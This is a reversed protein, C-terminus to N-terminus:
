DLKSLIKKTKEKSYLSTACLLLHTPLLFIFLRIKMMLVKLSTYPDVQLLKRCFIRNSNKKSCVRCCVKLKDIMRDAKKFIPTTDLFDSSDSEAGIDFHSYNKTPHDQDQLM